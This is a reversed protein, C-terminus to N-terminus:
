RCTFTPGDPRSAAVEGEQGDAVAKGPMREAGSGMDAGGVMRFSHKKKLEKTKPSGYLIIIQYNQNNKLKFKHKDKKQNHM